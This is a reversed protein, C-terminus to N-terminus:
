VTIDLGHGSGASILAVVGAVNEISGAPAISGGQSARKFTQQDRQSSNGQGGSLPAGQNNIEISAHLGYEEGLKAQVTSLHASIAQSLDNHDLSIQTVMQQQSLSTRISIDGFEVSHMGVHMETEGMTQILRASNIGSSAVVEEGAVHASAALDQAKGTHAADPTAAAAHQVNAAGHSVAPTLLMQVSGQAAGNEIARPAAVAAGAKVADGQANQATQSESAAHSSSDVVGAGVSRTNSAGANTKSTGADVMPTAGKQVANAAPLGVDTPSTLETTGPLGPTM